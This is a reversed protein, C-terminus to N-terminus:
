SVALKNAKQFHFSLTHLVVLFLQPSRVSRTHSHYIVWWKLLLNNILLNNWLIPPFLKIMMWFTNLLYSLVSSRICKSWITKRRKRCFFPGFLQNPAFCCRFFWLIFNNKESFAGFSTLKNINRIRWEENKMRCFPRIRWEHYALRTRSVITKNFNLRKTTM